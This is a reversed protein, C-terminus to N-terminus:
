FFFFPDPASIYFRKKGLHEREHAEADRVDHVEVEHVRGGRLGEHARELLEVVEAAEVVVAFDGVVPLPDSIIHFLLIRKQYKKNFKWISDM